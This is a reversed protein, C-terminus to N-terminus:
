RFDTELIVLRRDGRFSIALPTAGGRVPTEVKTSSNPPVHLLQPAGNVTIELDLPEAVPNQILTTMMTRGDPIRLWVRGEGARSAKDFSVAGGTTFSYPGFPRRGHGSYQIAPKTNWGSTGGAFWFGSADVTLPYKDRIEAPVSPVTNLLLGSYIGTVLGHESAYDGWVIRKTVLPTAAHPQDDGMYRVLNALMRDAIPDRGSRHVLDFGTMMASGAGDFIEALAIGELGHDYNAIVSVNGPTATNSFVFGRTVPYVQPFGPKTENWDTFDDWLFLRDRDIGRLAPHGALEPNVAMGDRFPRDGPFVLAHDLPSAKLTVPAPLWSGDFRAPDQHLILVRGGNAIFRQIAPIDRGLSASWADAGIVLLDHAADLSRVNTINRSMVGIAGLAKRSAGAPDYTLVRRALRAIKPVERRAVYLATRNRSLTDGGHTIVGTLAYSGAALTTPIAISVRQSRAAYYRVDPLSSTGEVRVVGTSDVLAYRLLLGSLDAGREDDNVVHAVPAITSGAYVQSTWLEWSLLVPQYSVAYQAGLPKPKMDDFRTIGYWNHFLITFPTLGALNPNQERSRRFIEIAQGGMWAQYALARESQESDPAHGTWNLQSDPQKTNSVLNFRGDVGTYNGTNETMTMPQAVSTRWCTAPYRMTYFSLFSNYYWGWYRHLDCVDGARGFGYGANAIYVRTADWAHLSDYAQTLFANVADAGTSLYGIEKDAQENSLVYVTVSPHNVLPGLVADKYWALSQQFPRTPPATPKGGQPTGYNGQFLMMGLEDCVDFWVQSHRTLRIINVGVSKLYRVYPEVFRRNEQLSDPIQREPPNIANGKLFIPRGNLLIQGNTASVTRFGIRASAIRNPSDAVDEMIFQYLAPTRPSWRKPALGGIRAELHVRGPAGEAIVGLRGKWLTTGDNVDVIRGNATVGGLARNPGSFEIRMSTTDTFAYLQPGDAKTATIVVDDQASLNAAGLMLM